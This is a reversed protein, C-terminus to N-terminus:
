KAHITQNLLQDNKKNRSAIVYTGNHQSISIEWFDTEEYFPIELTGYTAFYTLENIRNLYPADNNKVTAAFITNLLMTAAVFVAMVIVTAVISELLASGKIKTLLAM